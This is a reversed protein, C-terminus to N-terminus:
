LLCCIVAPDDVNGFVDRLACGHICFNAKAAADDKVAWIKASLHTNSILAIVVSPVSQHITEVSKGSM